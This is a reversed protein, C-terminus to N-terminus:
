VSIRSLTTSTHQAPYAGSRDSVSHIGTHLLQRCPTHALGSVQLQSGPYVPSWQSVPLLHRGNSVFEQAQISTVIEVDTLSVKRSTNLNPLIIYHVATNRLRELV